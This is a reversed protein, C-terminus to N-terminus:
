VDLQRLSWGRSVVVSLILIINAMNVVPSFTDEYDIGYQQRFGKAVLRAKYRDLSGAYKLKTKYVWKCDIINTGKRPPVLHWTKNRILADYEADMADKWAKSSLAEELFQPASTSTFLSSYQVIGDTYVKPKCIGGQLRACCAPPSSGASALSSPLGPVLSSADAPSPAPSGAPTSSGLSDEM